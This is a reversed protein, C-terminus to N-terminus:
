GVTPAALLVQLLGPIPVSRQTSNTGGLLGIIGGGPVAWPMLSVRFVQGQELPEGPFHAKVM